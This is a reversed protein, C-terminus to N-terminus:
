GSIYVTGGAQRVKAKFEELTDGAHINVPPNVGESRLWAIAGSNIDKVSFRSCGCSGGPTEFPGDWAVKTIEYAPTGDDNWDRECVRCRCLEGVALPAETGPKWGRKAKPDNRHKPENHWCPEYPEGANHEYPADDWDDGWQEAIPRTTFYAWQREVYCLRPIVVRHVLATPEAQQQIM